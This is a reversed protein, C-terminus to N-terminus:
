LVVTLEADLPLQHYGLGNIDDGWVVVTISDPNVRLALVLERQGNITTYVRRFKKASVAAAGVEAATRTEVQVTITSM